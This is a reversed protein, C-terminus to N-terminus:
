QTRENKNYKKNVIYIYKKNKNFHHFVGAEFNVNTEPESATRIELETENQKKLLIM